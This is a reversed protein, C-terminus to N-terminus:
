RSTPKATRVLKGKKRELGEFLSQIREQQLAMGMAAWRKRIRLLIVVRRVAQRWKAALDLRRGQNRGEARARSPVQARSPCAGMPRLQQNAGKGIRVQQDASRQNNTKTFRPQNTTFLDPCTKTLNRMHLISYLHTRSAKTLRLCYVTSLQAPTEGQSLHCVLYLWTSTSLEDVRLYLM